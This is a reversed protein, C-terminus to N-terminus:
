PYVGQVPKLRRHLGGTGLQYIHIFILLYSVTIHEMIIYIILNSYSQTFKWIQDSCVTFKAYKPSWLGLLPAHLKKIARM